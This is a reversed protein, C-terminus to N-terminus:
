AVSANDINKNTILMFKHPFACFYSKSDFLWVPSDMSVNYHTFNKSQMHVVQTWDRAFWIISRSSQWSHHRLTCLCYYGRLMVLYLELAFCVFCFTACFFQVEFPFSIEFYFSCITKDKKEQLIHELVM